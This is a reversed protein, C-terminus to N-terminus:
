AIHLVSRYRNVYKKIEQEMQISGAIKEDYHNIFAQAIKPYDSDLLFRNLHMKQAQGIANRTYIELRKERFFYEKVEEYNKSQKIKDLNMRM